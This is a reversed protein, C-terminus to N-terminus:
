PLSGSSLVRSAHSSVSASGGNSNLFMDIFGPSLLKAPSSKAHQFLTASTATTGRQRPRQDWRRQGEERKGDGEEKGRM